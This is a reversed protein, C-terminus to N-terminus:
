NLGLTWQQMHLRGAEDEIILPVRMTDGTVVYPAGQGSETAQDACAVASIAMTSETTIWSPPRTVAARADARQRMARQAWYCHWQAAMQRARDWAVDTCYVAILLAAPLLWIFLLVYLLVSGSVM